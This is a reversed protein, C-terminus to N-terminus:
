IFKWTTQMNGFIELAKQDFIRKCTNASSFPVKDFSIYPHLRKSTFFPSLTTFALKNKYNAFEAM